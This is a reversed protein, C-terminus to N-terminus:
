FLGVLLLHENTKYDLSMSPMISKAWVLLIQKCRDACWCWASISAQFLLLM